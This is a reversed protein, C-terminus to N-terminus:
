AAKTLKSKLWAWGARALPTVYAHAFAGVIVGVVFGFTANM